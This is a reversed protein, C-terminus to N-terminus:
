SFQAFMKFGRSSGKWSHRSYVTHVLVNIKYEPNQTFVIVGYESKVAEEALIEDPGSSVFNCASFNKECPPLELQFEGPYKDGLKHFYDMAAGRQKEMEAKWEAIEIQMAAVKEADKKKKEIGAEKEKLAERERELQAMEEEPTPTSEPSTTEMVEEPAVEKGKRFRDRSQELSNMQRM